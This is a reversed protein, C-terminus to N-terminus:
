HCRRAHRRRCCRRRARHRRSTHPRRRAPPLQQTHTYTHTTLLPRTRTPTHHTRACARTRPPNLDRRSVQPSGPGAVRSEGRWPSSFWVNSATPVTAAVMSLSGSIEARRPRQPAPPTMISCRSAAYPTTQPLDRAGPAVLGASLGRGVPLSVHLRCLWPCYLTHCAQCMAVTESAQSLEAPDTSAAATALAGLAALAAEDEDKERSSCERKPSLLLATIM